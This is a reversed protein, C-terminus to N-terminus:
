GTWLLQGQDHIGRGQILKKEHAQLAGHAGLQGEGESSGEWCGKRAGGWRWASLELPNWLISVEKSNVPLRKTIENLRQSNVFEWIYSELRPEKEWRHEVGLELDLREKVNCICYTWSQFGPRGGEWSSRRCIDRDWDVAARVLAMFRPIKRSREQDRVSDMWVKLLDQQDCKWFMDLVVGNTVVMRTQVVPVDQRSQQFLRM